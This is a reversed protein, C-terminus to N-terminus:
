DNEDNQSTENLYIDWEDCDAKLQNLISRVTGIAMDGPHKPISLPPALKPGDERVFTPEKGRKSRVRKLQEAIRILDDATRGQPSRLM